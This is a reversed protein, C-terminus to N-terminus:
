ETYHTNKKENAGNLPLMMGRSVVLLVWPVPLGDSFLLLHAILICLGAYVLREHLDALEDRDPHQRHHVQWASSSSVYGIYASLPM